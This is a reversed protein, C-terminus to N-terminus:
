VHPVVWYLKIVVKRAADPWPAASMEPFGLHTLGPVPSKWRVLPEGAISSASVVTGPQGFQSM